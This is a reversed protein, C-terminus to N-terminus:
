PSPGGPHTATELRNTVMAVRPLYQKSDQPVYRPPPKDDAKPGEAKRRMGELVHGHLTHIVKHEIPEWFFAPHLKREFRTTLTIRSRKEGVPEIEFSGDQLRAYNESRMQIDVVDFALKRPADVKSIRKKIEGCNYFCTVIEGEKQKSGESRIPQPLALHLLWPPAHDVDEYFMIANWAEQPTADITLGTKIVAIETRRPIHDEILQGILPLAAILWVYWRFYWAHDWNGAILFMRLIVGCVVGLFTPLLFLIGLMFGCFIGALNWSILAFVVSVIALIGLVAFAWTQVRCAYGLIAGLCIPVAIFLSWGMEGSVQMCGAYTLTGVLVSLLFGPLWFKWRSSSRHTAYTEARAPDYQLGCFPCIGPQDLKVLQGGCRRCYPTAASAASTMSTATAESM